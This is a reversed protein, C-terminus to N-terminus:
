AARAATVTLVRLKVLGYSTVLIFLLVIFFIMLTASAMRVARAPAKPILLQECRQYFSCFSLLHLWVLSKTCDCLRQKAKRTNFVM